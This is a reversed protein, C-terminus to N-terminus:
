LAPGTERVRAPARVAAPRALADAYLASLRKQYAEMSFLQARRRGKESLSRRLAEDRDLRAIGEAIAGADYPDVTVAADGVVEVLAGATSTLVPAGAMMAELVPLGFGEYLSPFLVARAGRVLALLMSRPLFDLRRLRNSAGQERWLPSDLLRLEDEALWSKAGVLVLPAHTDTRLFAL